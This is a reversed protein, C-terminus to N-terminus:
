RALAAESAFAEGVALVVKIIIWEVGTVVNSNADCLKFTTCYIFRVLDSTEVLQCYHILRIFRPVIIFTLAISPGPILDRHPM